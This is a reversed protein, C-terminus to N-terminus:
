EDYAMNRALKLAEERTTIKGDLQDARVARLIRSYIPGQPIGAQALDAGGLLPEPNLQDDDWSLRQRCLSVGEHQAGFEIEAIAVAAEAHRNILLPQVESWALQHARSLTLLNSEIWTIADAEANSLKWREITPRLGQSKILRSLLISAAQVFTGADGLEDLWRLRTRWNARNQYLLDGDLLIENLLGTERLLEAAVARHRDVLMRRMEGGIREPSVLSIEHARKGIAAKTADELEFNFAATFRVARLMRLKDEDFRQDPDGIARIIRCEIDARGDVYDILEKAVPDYFMGNITFDRRAADERADTFEVADPHRGDSYQADRRFTAVEVNGSRQSGIVTIVGFAAGIAITRRHGFLQACRPRRPAPPWM